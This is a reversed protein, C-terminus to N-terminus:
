QVVIIVTKKKVCLKVNGGKGVVCMCVCMVMHVCECMHAFVCVCFPASAISSSPTLGSPVNVILVHVHVHLEIKSDMSSKM